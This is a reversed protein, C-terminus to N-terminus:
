KAASPEDNEKDAGEQKSEEMTSTFDEKTNPGDWDIDRYKKFNRMDWLEIVDKQRYSGTMVTFGDSKFDIAEGCISPGYMSAV